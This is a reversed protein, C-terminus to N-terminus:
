SRQVAGVRRAAEAVAADKAASVEEVTLTRDPARFRLAYALSKRGAGLREDRYVDFLRLSELLEGAGARLADEVDAASIGEDVVLAVDEKALPFGSITPGVDLDEAYAALATLDLELAVTRSPLGLTTIVRPHLEGAYGIPELTEGTDVLLEACRGPHWPDRRAARVVLPADIAHAAERALQIADAWTAPRGPGWWGDAEVEGTLVAALHFPQDPLGADLAALEEDSPRHDVGLRPMPLPHGPKPLFVRGNEFVALDTFGRGLNRKVTALLAPLLTTRLYPEEDSLPNALRVMTRRSDDGPLGLADLAAMGVFPYSRVETLGTAAVRRSVLLGHRQGSSRAVGAPTPRLTSPVQDYGELRIVEEALDNPDTLDPRWPPPTVTLRHDAGPGAVTCGIDELRRVVTDDPYDIGAVRGPHRVDLQVTAPQPRLDVEDFGVHRAGGLEVLLNAARMTAVPPLAPDVGREFRRSAESSLKHRRSQRAVTIADFHAAELVLETSTESIETSAGGMTGALAIPGSGDTVLLDENGLTRAAGDLTTLTEGARARRIVVEGALLSQDFAHLPQGLELMVYNTIDVALSIPRMGSQHLRSTMWLPTRATEDVGTVRRLVIRDAGAPDAILVPHGGAEAGPGDEGLEEPVDVAAPDRFPVGYATAVERAVGRISLAYGRDPTVAIDLVAEPLGLLPKADDGPKADVVDAATLVYIGTHDEGLDLEKLSCIMGDSVHGYTKRAAIAFGGPLVAGPLAVVVLDDAAFNHAGCVIGRSGGDANHEGVDVQCWRITKGNSQPEDLAELVRGVVLPGVVDIDHVAEVELGVRTLREAVARASEGAPLDVHEGLWRLPVRM